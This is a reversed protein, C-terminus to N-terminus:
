TAKTVKTWSDSNIQASYSIPMILGMAMGALITFQATPKAVDTWASFDTGDYFVDSDDYTLDPQDYQEKGQTNVYTYTADTPKSVNTWM